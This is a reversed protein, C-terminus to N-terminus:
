GLMNRAGIELHVARRWRSAVRGAFYTALAMLLLVSLCWGAATQRVESMGLPMTQHPPTAIAVATATGYLTSVAAFVIMVVWVTAWDPRNLMWVVFVTQLMALLVVARAWGPAAELNLHGLRVVPALSFLVAALLLLTLWKVTAIRGPDARYVDWPVYQTETQRRRPTERAVAAKDDSEATEEPPESEGNPTDRRSSHRQRKRDRRGARRKNETPAQVPPSEVDPKETAPKTESETSSTAEDSSTVPLAPPTATSTAAREASEDPVPKQPQLDTVVPAEALPKATALAAPAREAESPKKVATEPTATPKAAKETRHKPLPPPKSRPKDTDESVEPVSVMQQCVPCQIQQGAFKRAVSLRHGAPCTIHLPMALLLWSFLSFVTPM